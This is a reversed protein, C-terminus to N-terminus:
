SRFVQRPFSAAVHEVSREPVVSAGSILLIAGIAAVGTAFGVALGLLFSGAAAGIGAGILAYLVTLALGGEAISLRSITHRAKDVVVTSGHSDDPNVGGSSGGVPEKVLEPITLSLALLAFDAAPACERSEASTSAVATGIRM